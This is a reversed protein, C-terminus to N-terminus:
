GLRVEEKKTNTIYSDDKSVIVLVARISLAIFNICALGSFVVIALRSPFTPIRLSAHGEFTKRTWASIMPDWSYYAILLFLVAGLLYGVLWLTRSVLRPAYSDMIETRLLGGIRITYSLQLFAVILLTNAVVEAVGIISKNLFIRSLVDAGILVAILALAVASIIMLSKSILSLLDDVKRALKVISM